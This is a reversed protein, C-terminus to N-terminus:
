FTCSFIPLAEDNVSIIQDLRIVEGSKLVMFESGKKTYVDIITSVINHEIENKYFRISCKEKLTSKALLLEHFDCNIPKYQSQM